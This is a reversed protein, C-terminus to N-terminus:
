KIILKFIYTIESNLFLIQNNAEDLQRKYKDILIKNNAEKSKNEEQFKQFMKKLYLIDEKDKKSNLKNNM